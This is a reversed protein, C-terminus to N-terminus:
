NIYLAYFHSISGLLVFIHWIGHHYPLNKAMYFGAGIAYAIGGVLLYIFSEVPIQALFSKWNLFCMLGFSFYLFLSLKSGRYKSVLKYLVGIVAIFWIFGLYHYKYEGIMNNLVFPTYCGAMYVYICAHDIRKFFQKLDSNKVGHYITSALYIMVFSIAYVTHGVFEEIGRDSTKSILFFYLVIGLFIGPLHTLVNIREEYKFKELTISTMINTLSVHQDM